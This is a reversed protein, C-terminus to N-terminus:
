NSDLLTLMDVFYIQLHAIDGIALWQCNPSFITWAYPPELLTENIIRTVQTEINYLLIQNESVIILESPNEPSFCAGTILRGDYSPIIRSYEGARPSWLILDSPAAHIDGSTWARATLLVYDGNPSVDYLREISQEIPSYPIDHISLFEYVSAEIVGAQFDIYQFVPTGDPAFYWLALASEDDSWIIGFSDPSSNTRVPISFEKLELRERDALALPHGPAFEDIPVDHAYALFRGSQSGYVFDLPKFLIEESSNLIPQFPWQNHQSLDQTALAFLEWLPQSLNVGFIISGESTNTLNSPDFYSFTQSDSSWSGETIFTSDLNLTLISQNQAHTVLLVVFVMGFLGLWKM